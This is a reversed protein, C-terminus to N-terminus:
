NEQCRELYSVISERPIRIQRGVRCFDLNGNQCLFYITSRSVDLFNAVEGPRFLNKTPLKAFEVTFSYGAVSITMPDSATM